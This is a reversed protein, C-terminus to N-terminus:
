QGLPRVNWQNVPVILSRGDPLTREIRNPKSDLEYGRQRLQERWSDMRRAEDEMWRRAQDARVEYVPIRKTNERPQTQGQVASFNKAPQFSADDSALTLEGIPTGWDNDLPNSNTNTNTNPPSAASQAIANTSNAGDVSGDFMPQVVAIGIVFLVSAALTASLVIGKWGSKGFFTLLSSDDFADSARAVTLTNPPQSAMSNNTLRIEKSFAQEELLALAVMRWNEPALDIQKLLLKRESPPLEGDVLRQIELPDM